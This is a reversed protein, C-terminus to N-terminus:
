GRHRRVNLKVDFGTKLSPKAEKKKTCMLVTAVAGVREDGDAVPTEGRHQKTMETVSQKM